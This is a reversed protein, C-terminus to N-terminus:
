VAPDARDASGGRGVRRAAGAWLGAWGVLCVVVAAALALGRGGALGTTAALPTQTAAALPALGLGTTAGAFLVAQAFALAAGSLAFALLAPRHVRRASWGHGLLVLGCGALLLPVYTAKAGTLAVLLLVFLAWPRAGGSGDRLLDLLALVTAAFLAAGFTQTPSLWVTRLVEGDYGATALWAYPTPVSWVLTTLVAVPGVWWRASLARGLAAVGVLSAALMPPLSLRYLLTQLEIGTAWSTAALDAYVFWHYRLPEGAVYPIVPPVHHKLEGALALHFPLDVYPAANGPPALGHGRFFTVAGHAVAFLVAGAVAWAWGTPVRRGSGRWHRRLRPATAFAVLVAVPALLALRPAGAARAAVYALVEVAYGVATGAAVDAPLLGPRGRGARWLLTGPLAIALLLYAAFAALDRAPVGYGALLAVTALLAVGAPVWGLWRRAGAGLKRAPATTAM